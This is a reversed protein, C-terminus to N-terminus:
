AVKILGLYLGDLLGHSSLNLNDQKNEGHINITLRGEGDDTLVDFTTSNNLIFTNGVFVISQIDQEKQAEKIRPKVIKIFLNFIDKLTKEDSQLGNDTLKVTISSDYAVESLYCAIDACEDVLKFSVKYNGHKESVCSLTVDSLAQGTISHNPFINIHSLGNGRMFSAWQLQHNIDM